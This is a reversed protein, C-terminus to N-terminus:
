NPLHAAIPLANVVRRFAAEVEDVRARLRGTERKIEDIAPSTEKCAGELALAAEVAREARLTLLSGKLRHALQAVSNYDGNEIGNQIGELM